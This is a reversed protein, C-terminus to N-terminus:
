GVVEKEPLSKGLKSQCLRRPRSNEAKLVRLVIVDGLGRTPSRTAVMIPPENRATKGFPKKLQGTEM